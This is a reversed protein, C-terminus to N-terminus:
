GLSQGALVCVAPGPKHKIGAWPWLVWLSPYCPAAAGKAIRPPLFSASPPQPLSLPASPPQPSSAQLRPACGLLQSGLLGLPALLPCLPSSFGRSALRAGDGEGGVEDRAEM